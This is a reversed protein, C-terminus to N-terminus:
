ACEQIQPTWMGLIANANRQAAPSATSGAQADPACSTGPAEAAEVSVEDVSEAVLSDDDSSV